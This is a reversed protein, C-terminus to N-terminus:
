QDRLREKWQRQLYTLTKRAEEIAGRTKELEVELRQNELRLKLSEADNEVIDKARQVERNLQELEERAKQLQIALVRNQDKLNAATSRPVPRASPAHIKAWDIVEGGNRTILARLVSEDLNKPLTHVSGDFMAAHIVDQHKSGLEPLPGDAEYELDEPKTWPLDSSVEVIMITTAAGDPIDTPFRMGKRKEFGAGKGVFVQYFTSPNINWNMSSPHDFIKPMEGLLMKNQPSDWPEDLNFRKYLADQELYPLLAVRWSLLPRGNKDYIAPEPFRKYTDLYMHMALGLQKLNNVSQGRAKREEESNRTQGVRARSLPKQEPGDAKGAIQRMTNRKAPQAGSSDAAQTWGTFVGAGTAVIGALLLVTAVIKVKTIFMSHLVGETLVAVQASVVGATAKGAASVLASNVLSNVLPGPLTAALAHDSLAFALAAGSLTVGRRSLRLRLRQRARSLRSLITGKPCGLQRAAEENTKGELYCLVFPTRYKEPLHNVEEDLVPRLDRWVLDTAAEAAPLEVEPLSQLGRAVTRTKVALAIRYAVKYLWSSLAEHRGISHAKRVLILFTAQFADEADQRHRLLRQCLSLVMAGHRWILVEFAAEDRQNLFRELLEADSLAVTGKPEVVRRIHRLLTRLHGDPM